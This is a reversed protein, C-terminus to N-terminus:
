GSCGCHLCARSQHMARNEAEQSAPLHTYRTNLLSEMSWHTGPDSPGLPPLPPPPLSHPSVPSMASSSLPRPCMLRVGQAEMDMQSTPSSMAAGVGERPEWPALICALDVHYVSTPTANPTLRDSPIRSASRQCGPVWLGRALRPWEISWCQWARDWTRVDREGSGVGEGVAAVTNLNWSHPIQLMGALELIAYLVNLDGPRFPQPSCPGTLILPNMWPANSLLNSELNGRRREM